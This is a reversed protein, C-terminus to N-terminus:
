PVWLYRGGRGPIVAAGRGTGAAQGGSPAQLNEGDAVSILAPDCGRHDVAARASAKASPMRYQPGSSLDSSGPDVATKSTTRHSSPTTIRPTHRAQDPRAHHPGPRGTQTSSRAKVSSGPLRLTGSSGPLGFRGRDKELKTAPPNRTRPSHRHRRCPHPAPGESRSRRKSRSGDRPGTNVTPMRCQPLWTPGDTHSSLPFAGARTHRTLRTTNAPHQAKAPRARERM